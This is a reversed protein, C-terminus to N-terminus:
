GEPTLRDQERKRAAQLSDLYSQLLITAAVADIVQKRNKRRMDAEILIREAAVTTLREDYMVVEVGVQNRLLEAFAQCQLAREGTSGNMNLPLGVVVRDVERERVLDAIQGVAIEDSKRKLVSLGQALFGTPDSLALGIRALGYDVSLIRM